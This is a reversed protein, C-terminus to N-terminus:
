SGFEFDKYNSYCKALTNGRKGSSMLEGYPCLCIMETNKQLNFFRRLGDFLFIASGLYRKVISSFICRSPFEFLGSPWIICLLFRTCLFPHLVETSTNTTTRSERAQILRTMNKAISFNCLFSSIRLENQLVTRPVDLELPFTVGGHVLTWHMSAEALLYCKSVLTM